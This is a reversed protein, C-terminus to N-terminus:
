AVTEALNDPHAFPLRRVTKGTLRRWANAIAPAAPPVGPEGVGSPKETSAIIAVEVEPMEGIRLSRYTDFNSQMVRGGEGITIEAYLAHGVAFGIGGEMQARIVNPNIPTGCDVACWVKHVRPLGDEGKSVEAVQAVYTDFSKHAAIGRARGAPAKGKAMAAVRTLVGKLRDEKMLALRGQVPDTGAMELLEDLVTEKVFATHTHGVSRWWLTPVGNPMIHQTVRMNPIAYDEAIGETITSDIGNQVLMAEMPTGIGFSQAAVVQDWGAIAGAADLGVRVRHLTLPRYRGGTIDGERSAVHKVPAKFGYAKCAMAAEVGDGMDPTARRGFSGGAYQQHLTCNAFPIGLTGAIAGMEGVQFQSGAWVDARGNKVEIVHDLPEMPAHALFPFRFTADITRAAGALGKVADGEAHVQKGPAAAAKAYAAFMQESTRTEAKAFDWDVELAARGRMASWTDRAYVVVGRPVTQVEIVGPVALAAEANVKKVSGGFAPPRLITSHVMGPRRIDMTFMATGDTKIRSDLKLNEKGILTFKDPTKLPVDTPVPLQAADNALEGFTARRNGASVVGKSVTIAAVPVNWRKAAASVLMARATAGAQRMQMWSEKIASSGGTGMTGFALNKYLPDNAPSFATRMQSWDADLEDAVITTIGTTPGQGMEIHKQIVTVSNDPAIRVFANPAFPTPAATGQAMAGKAPLALGLVLGTGGLFGRRTPTMATM